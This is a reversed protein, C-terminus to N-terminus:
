DAIPRGERDWRRVAALDGREDIDREEALRGDPYWRRSTGVAVGRVMMIELRLTGDPYWAREVGNPIGDVVPTLGVVNGHDDTDVVEGTFPRGEYTYTFGDDQSTDDIDVRVTNV